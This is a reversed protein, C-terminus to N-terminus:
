TASPLLLAEAELLLSACMLLDYLLFLEELTFVFKQHATAGPLVLCRVQPDPLQHAHQEYLSHITARWEPLEARKLCLAVNGFYIHLCCGQPCRSICGLDNHHLSRCM